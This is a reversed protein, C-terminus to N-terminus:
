KSSPELIEKLKKQLDALKQDIKEGKKALIEHLTMFFEKSVQSYKLGIQRSPRVISNEFFPNIKIFHPNKDLIEADSYLAPHTPLFSASLAKRKQEKAGTLHRILSIAEAKHQSYKSVALQQGGLMNAYKGEPGGKPLRTIGILDKIQSDSATLVGWISAWSRLFIANSSQFVGRGDEENYNLVGEPSITGIWSSAIKLAAKTEPNNV